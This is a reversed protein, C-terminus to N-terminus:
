QKIAIPQTDGLVFTSKTEVFGEKQAYEEITAYSSLTYIKEKLIMNERELSAIEGQMNGLTIGDTSFANSIAIQILSLIIIVGVLTSLLIVARKMYISM